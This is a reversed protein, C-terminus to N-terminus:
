IQQWQLHDRPINNHQFEHQTKGPIPNKGRELMSLWWKIITYCLSYAKETQKLFHEGVGYESLQQLVKSVFSRKGFQIVLSFREEYKYLGFAFVNGRCRFCAMEIGVWVWVTWKNLVEQKYYAFDGRM